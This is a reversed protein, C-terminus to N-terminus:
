VKYTACQSVFFIFGNGIEGIEQFFPVMWKEFKKKRKRQVNITLFVKRM